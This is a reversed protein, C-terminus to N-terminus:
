EQPVIWEDLRAQCLVVNGPGYGPYRSRITELIAHNHRPHAFVVIPLLLGKALEDAPHRVPIGDVEAPPPDPADYLICHPKCRNFLAAYQRYAEGCGWFYVERGALRQAEHAALRLSEEPSAAHNPQNCRACLPLSELDRDWHKRYFERYVPSTFITELSSEGLNGLRDEKERLYPCPLIDLNWAISLEDARRGWVVSCPFPMSGHRATKLEDRVPFDFVEKGSIFDVGHMKAFSSFLSKKQDAREIGYHRGTDQFYDMVVILGTGQKVARLHAFNELVTDFADRGHLRVYDERTHAYCSIQMTELGARVLSRFYAASRPISLSTTLCIKSDPCFRRVLAVREPLDDLILSEGACSVYIDRAFDKLKPLIAKLDDIPMTGAPRIDRYACFACRNPCALTSEIFIRRFQKKLGFLGWDPLPKGATFSFDGRM